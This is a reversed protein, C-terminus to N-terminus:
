LMAFSYYRITWISVLHQFTIDRCKSALIKLQLMKTDMTNRTLTNNIIHETEPVRVHCNYAMEFHKVVDKYSQHIHSNQGHLCILYEYIRELLIVDQKTPKYKEDESTDMPEAYKCCCCYSM